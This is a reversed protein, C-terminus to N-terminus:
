TETIAVKEIKKKIFAFFFEAAVKPLTQESDFM